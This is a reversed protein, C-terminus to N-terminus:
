PSTSAKPYFTTFWQLKVKEFAARTEVGDTWSGPYFAGLMEGVQFALRGMESVTALITGEEIFPGIFADGEKHPRLMYHSKMTPHGALESFMKYAEARKKETFGDRKDLKERVRAPSFKKWITTEDAFRWQEIQTHDSQFLDLLFVTELIDRMILASNQSYGSFALKISAGFANFIRMGLMQIVKLDEDDTNYQRLVDSLDMAREVVNLHLAMRDDNAVLALAKARLGEEGHHLLALNEPIINKTDGNDTM